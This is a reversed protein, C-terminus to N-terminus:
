LNVQYAMTAPDMYEYPLFRGRNREAVTRSIGRMAEQLRLAAARHPAPMAALHSEAFHTIPVPTPRALVWAPGIQKCATERDPLLRLFTTEDSSGKRTPPDQYLGAPTHPVYGYAELQGANMASHLPGAKFIIDTLFDILAARATVDPLGKMAGGEADRLEALWQAIEQDEAVAADSRYHADIIERVYAHIADWILSADDRFAYVPLTAATVGRAVLDGHFTHEDWRYLSWARACGELVGKAGGSLSRDIIGDRSVLLKRAIENIGLCKGLFPTLLAYLPSQPPVNRHFAVTIVETVLHCGFYHFIGQHTHNSANQVFAKATLWDWKSDAPTFVPTQERALDRRAQIAIPTLMNEANRHFLCFPETMIRGPRRHLGALVGYDGYFIRDAAMEDALSRGKPLVTAVDADTVHFGEPIKKCLRIQHPNVGALQLWGFWADDQWNRAPAPPKPVIHYYDDFGRLTGNHRSLRRYIKDYMRNALALYLRVHIAINYLTPLREWRPLDRIWPPLDPSHRFRYADRAQRLAEARAASEAPEHTATSLQQDM